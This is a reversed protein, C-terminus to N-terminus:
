LLSIPQKKLKRQANTCIKNLLNLARTAKHVLTNIHFAGWSMSKHITVGLYSHQDKTDLPYHNINYNHQSTSSRSCHIIVYKSENAM